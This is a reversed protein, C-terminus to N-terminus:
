RTTTFDDKHVHFPRKEDYDIHTFAVKGIFLVHDGVPKEDIVECEIWGLAEKIRFCDVLKECEAENLDLSEIKDIFEPSSAMVNKIKDVQSFPMFNVVFSRSERIIYSALLNKNVVIAYMPPHSSLPTHWHCPLIDDKEKDSGM